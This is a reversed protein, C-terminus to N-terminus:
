TAKKKAQTAKTIGFAAHQDPVVDDEDEPNVPQLHAPVYVEDDPLRDKCFDEFLDADGARHLHVHTHTADKNMKHLQHHQAPIQLTPHVDLSSLPDFPPPRFMGLRITINSTSGAM